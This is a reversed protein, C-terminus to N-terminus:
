DDRESLDMLEILTVDMETSCNTRKNARLGVGNTGNVKSCLDMIRILYLTNTHTWTHTALKTQKAAMSIYTYTDRWKWPFVSIRGLLACQINLVRWPTFNCHLMQYVMYICVTKMGALTIKVSLLQLVMHKSVTTNELITILILFIEYRQFQM